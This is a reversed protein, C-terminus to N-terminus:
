YHHRPRLRQFPMITYMMDYYFTDQLRFTTMQIEMVHSCMTTHKALDITVVAVTCEEVSADISFKREGIDCFHGLHTLLLGRVYGDDSATHVVSTWRSEFLHQSRFSIPLVDTTSVPQPLTLNLCTM